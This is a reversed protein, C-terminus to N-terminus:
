GYRFARVIVSRSRAGASTLYASSSSQSSDTSSPGLGNEQRSDGSSPGGTRGPSRARRRGRGPSRRLLPEAVAAEDLAGDDGEGGVAAQQEDAVGAGALAPQGLQQGGRDAAVGGQDHLAGGAGGLVVDLVRPVDGHHDGLALRPLRHDGRRDHGRHLRPAIPRNSSSVREVLSTWSASIEIRDSFYMESGRARRAVVDDEGLRAEGIMAVALLRSRPTLSRDEASLRRKLKTRMGTTVFLFLSASITRKRVSSSSRRCWCRAPRAASGAPRGAASSRRGARRRRRPRGAVVLLQLRRQRGGLLDAHQLVRDQVAVEEAVAGQGGLM